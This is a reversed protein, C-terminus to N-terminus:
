TQFLKSHILYQKWKHSSKSTYNQMKVIIKPQKLFDLFDLVLITNWEALQYM